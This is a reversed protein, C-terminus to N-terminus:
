YGDPSRSSIELPIELRGFIEQAAAEIAPQTTIFELGVADDHGGKWFYGGLREALRVTQQRLFPDLLKQRYAGSLMLRFFFRLTGLLGGIAALCGGRRFYWRSQWDLGVRREDTDDSFDRAVLQSMDKGADSPYIRVLDFSNWAARLASSLDSGSRFICFTRRPAEGEFGEEVPSDVPQAAALLSNFRPDENTHWAVIAGEKGSAASVLAVVAQAEAETM